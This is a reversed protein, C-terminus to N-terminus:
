NITYYCIFDCKIVLNSLDIVHHLKDTSSWSGGNTSQLLLRVYFNNLDDIVNELTKVWWYAINTKLANSWNLSKSGIMWIGRQLRKCKWPGWM